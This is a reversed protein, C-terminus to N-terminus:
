ENAGTYVTTFWNNYTTEDTNATTKYRGIGNENALGDYSMKVTSIETKDSGTKYELKPKSFQTRVLLHRVGKTDGEIEFLLAVEKPNISLNEYMVNKSDTKFGLVNKEFDETVNAIEIEGKYAATSAAVYYARSDAYFKESNQETELTLNVIGPLKKVDGYSIAGNNGITAVAYHVNKLNFLVINEAM